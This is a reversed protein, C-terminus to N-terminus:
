RPESLSDAASRAAAIPDSQQKLVEILAKEIAPGLSNLVDVSPVLRASSLVLGIQPQLEFLASSNWASQRPPLYGAASTWGTLFNSETLFEALQASMEQREPQPSSLAWVWGTALTFPEGDRTSLPAVVTMTLTDSLYRSAWISALNARKEVLAEWVQDDNQIQSLWVPMLGIREAEQYFALVEALTEAELFPRGQDDLIPGDAAQYLALSFLAQPDAAAFAFPGNVQLAAAWDAPPVSVSETNYVQVLANGAFPLGFISSQLHSLQRAYEYWDQDEMAATLGDFPHLLGKLAAAELMPRPLAVLDPLALHAAASTTALSELMGGPGELAKVRVQVTVGPRRLSFEDLRAQLLEGAPTGSKPDFQPPLWVHLTLPGASAVAPPTPAVPTSTLGPSPTVSEPPSPTSEPFVISACSATLFLLLALVLHFVKM